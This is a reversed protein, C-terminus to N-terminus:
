RALLVPVIQPDVLIVSINDPGGRANAEEVLAEAARDLNERWEVVIDGIERDCLMETLGDTCLIIMDRPGLQPFYFEPILERSVGVAQTVIHGAYAPIEEIPIHEYEALWAALNDDTTIQRLREDRLLYVRSDGVHCVFVSSKVFVAIELTTGMDHLDKDTMSKKFVASHAAAVSEALIRYTEPSGILDLRPKLYGYVEKVALSSAVEGGRHGGLGDALLFIGKEEDVLVSDENNERVKGTDTKWSSRM